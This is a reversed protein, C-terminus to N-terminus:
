RSMTAALEVNVAYQEAVSVAKRSSSHVSGEKTCLFPFFNFCQDAGINKM